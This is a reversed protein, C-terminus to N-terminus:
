ELKCENCPLAGSHAIQKVPNVARLVQAMEGLLLQANEGVFQAGFEDIDHGDGAAM